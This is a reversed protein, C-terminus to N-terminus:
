SLMGDTQQLVQRSIRGSYAKHLFGPPINRPEWEQPSCHLLLFHLLLSLHLHPPSSINGFSLQHFHTYIVKPQSSFQLTQVVRHQNGKSVKYNQKIKFHYLYDFLFLDDIQRSIYGVKDAVHKRLPSQPNSELKQFQPQIRDLNIIRFLVLIM